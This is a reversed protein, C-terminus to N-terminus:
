KVYRWSTCIKAAHDITRLTHKKSPPRRFRVWCLATVGDRRSLAAVTLDDDKSSHAFAYAGPAKVQRRYANAGDVVLLKRADHENKAHWDRSVQFDLMVSRDPSFWRWANHRGLKMVQHWGRPLKIHVTGNRFLQLKRLTLPIQWVGKPKSSEGKSKCGVGATAFGLLLAMVVVGYSRVRPSLRTAPAFRPVMGVGDPRPRVPASPERIGSTSRPRRRVM